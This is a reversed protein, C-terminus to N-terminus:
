EASFTRASQQFIPTLRAFEDAPATYAVVWFTPGDKIIYTLQNIVIDGSHIALSLRVADYDPLNFSEKEVVEITDPLFSRVQTDYTALSVGPAHESSIVVNAEAYEGSADVVLMVYLEPNNEVVEALQDFEPGLKKLGTLAADLGQALDVDEFGAPLALSAGGSKFVIWGDPVNDDREPPATSATVPRATPKALTKDGTRCSWAGAMAIVLSVTLLVTRRGDVVFM